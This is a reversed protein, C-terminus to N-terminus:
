RVHTEQKIFTIYCMIEYFHTEPKEQKIFTIYCMIERTDGYKEQKIFTIYRM